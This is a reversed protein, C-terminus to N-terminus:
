PMRHAKAVRYPQKWQCYWSYWEESILLDLFYIKLPFYIKLRWGTHNNGNFICLVVGRIDAFGFFTNEISVAISPIM